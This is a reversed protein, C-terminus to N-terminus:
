DLAEEKNNYIGLVKHIRVLEFLARVGTSLGFIKMEGGKASLQRLATLIVGLGSSDMFRVQAMDLALKSTSAFIPGLQQKLHSANSADVTPGAVELVFVETKEEIMTPRRKDVGLNQM